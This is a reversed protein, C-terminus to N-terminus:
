GCVCVRACVCACMCVRMVCAGVCEDVCAGCVYLGERDRYSVRERETVCGRVYVHVYVFVWGSM